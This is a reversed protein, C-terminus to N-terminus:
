RRKKKKELRKERAGAMVAASIALLHVWLIYDSDDGTKVRGPLAATQVAQGPEVTPEPEGTIKGEDWKHGLASIERIEEFGCVECIHKESGAETCTPATETDGCASCKRVGSNWNHAGYGGKESNETVPCNREAFVYLLYDGNDIGWNSWISVTSGSETTNGLKGYTVVDTGNAAM